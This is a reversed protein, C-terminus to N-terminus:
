KTRVQFASAAALEALGGPCFTALYPEMQLLHRGAPAQDRHLLFKLEDL